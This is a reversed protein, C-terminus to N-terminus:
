SSPWGPLRRRLLIEVARDVPIRVINRSRDTWGYSEAFRADDRRLRQLDASPTVELSPVDASLAPAVAPSVRQMSQPFALPMLLPVALVFLGLGAAIWGVLGPDIDSREYDAGSEHNM